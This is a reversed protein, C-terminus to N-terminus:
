LAGFRHGVWFKHYSLVSQLCGMCVANFCLGSLGCLLGVYGCVYYCLLWFGYVGRGFSFCLGLGLLIM